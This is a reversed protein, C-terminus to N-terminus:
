VNVVSKENKFLSYYVINLKLKFVNMKSSQKTKTIETRQHNQEVEIAYINGGDNTTLTEITQKLQIHIIKTKQM